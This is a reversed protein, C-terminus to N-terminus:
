GRVREGAHAFHLVRPQFPVCCVEAAGKKQLEKAEREAAKVKALEVALRSLEQVVSSGAGNAEGAGKTAAGDAEGANAKAAGDAEGADQVPGPSTPAVHTKDTLTSLM